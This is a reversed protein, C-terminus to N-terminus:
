ALGLKKRAKRIHPEWYRSARKRGNILLRGDGDIRLEIDEFVYPKTKTGQEKLWANVSLSTHPATTQIHPIWWEIFRQLRQPIARKTSGGKGGRKIYDQNLSSRLRPAFEDPDLDYVKLAEATKEGKLFQKLQKRHHKKDAPTANYLQLIRLGM